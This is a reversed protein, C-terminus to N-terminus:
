NTKEITRIKNQIFLSAKIAAYKGFFITIPQKGIFEEGMYKEVYVIRNWFLNRKYYPHTIIIPDFTFDIRESSKSKTNFEFFLSFFLWEFGIGNKIIEGDELEIGKGYLITVRPLVEVQYEWTNTFFLKM